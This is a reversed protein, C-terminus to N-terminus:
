TTIGKNENQVSGIQEADFEHHKKLDDESGCKLHFLM